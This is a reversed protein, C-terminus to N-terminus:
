VGTSQQHRLASTGADQGEEKKQETQEVKEKLEEEKQEVHEQEELTIIGLEGM